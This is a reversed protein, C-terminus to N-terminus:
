VPTGECQTHSWHNWLCKEAELLSQCIHEQNEIPVWYENNLLLIYSMDAGYVYGKYVSGLRVEGCHDDIDNTLEGTERWEQFNM